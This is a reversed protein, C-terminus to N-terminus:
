LNHDEGHIELNSIHDFHFAQSSYFSNILPIVQSGSILYAPDLLRLQFIQHKYLYSFLYFLSLPWKRMYIIVYLLM